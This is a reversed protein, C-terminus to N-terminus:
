DTKEENFWHQRAAMIVEGAEDESNFVLKGLINYLEESDLDALDDLTKINNEALKLISSKSLTEFNYLDDKIKLNKLTKEVRENENKVFVLARSKLEEALEKDFGEINNLEEVTSNAIEDISTFGEAVMLHAIVDDVDLSEIFIKTRENIEEQRRESEEAETYVDIYWNSLESALRVNQGRRGIALSLQDDPVIVEVRGAEEDM